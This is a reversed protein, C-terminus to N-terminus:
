LPKPLPQGFVIESNHDATRAREIGLGLNEAVAKRGNNDERGFTDWFISQLFESFNCISDLNAAPFFDIKGRGELPKAAFPTDFPQEAFAATFKILTQEPGSDHILNIHCEARENKTTLM